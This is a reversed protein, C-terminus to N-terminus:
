SRRTKGTSKKPAKKKANSRISRAPKAKQDAAAAIAIVRKRRAPAKVRAAAAEEHAAHIAETVSRIYNAAEGETKIANVYIDSHFRLPLRREALHLHEMQMKLLGSVPRNPDYSSKPPQHVKIVTM